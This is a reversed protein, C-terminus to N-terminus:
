QASAGATIWSSITAIQSVSLTSGLPMQGGAIATYIESGNPNGPIVLGSSVLDALNTINSVGGPGNAGGHCSACNNTFITLAQQALDGTPTPTASPTPTPNPSVTTPPTIVSLAILNSRVQVYNLEWIDRRVVGDPTGSANVSDLSSLQQATVETAEVAKILQAPTM